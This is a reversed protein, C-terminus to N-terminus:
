GANRLRAESAPIWPSCSGQLIVVTGPCVLREIEPVVLGGFGGNDAGSAKAGVRMSSHGGSNWCEEAERGRGCSLMVIRLVGMEEGCLMLRLPMRNGGPLAGRGGRLRLELGNV